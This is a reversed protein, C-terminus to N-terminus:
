SGFVLPNRKSIKRDRKKKRRCAHVVTHTYACSRYLMVKITIHKKRAWETELMNFLDSNYINPLFCNLLHWSKPIHTTTISEHFSVFNSWKQKKKRAALHYLLLIFNNLKHHRKQIILLYKLTHTQVFYMYVHKHWYQIYKLMFFVNSNINIESFHYHAM